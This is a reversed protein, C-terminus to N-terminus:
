QGESLLSLTVNVGFVEGQRVLVALHVIPTAWYAMRETTRATKLWCVLDFRAAVRGAVEVDVVRLAIWTAPM